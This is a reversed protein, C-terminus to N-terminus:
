DQDDCEATPASGRPDRATGALCVLGLPHAGITWWRQQPLTGILLNEQAPCDPPYQSRVCAMLYGTSESM